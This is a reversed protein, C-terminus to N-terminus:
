APSPNPPRGAVAIHRHVVWSLHISSPPGCTRGPRVDLLYWFASTYLYKFFVYLYLGFVTASFIRFPVAEYSSKDRLSPKVASSKTSAQFGMKSRVSLSQVIGSFGQVLLFWEYCLHVGVDFLSDWGFCLIMWHFQRPMLSFKLSSSISIDSKFGAVM